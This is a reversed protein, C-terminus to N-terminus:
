TEKDGERCLGTTDEDVHANVIYTDSLMRSAYSFGNSVYFCVCISM